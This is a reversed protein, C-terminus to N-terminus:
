HRPRLTDFTVFAGGLGLTSMKKDDGRVGKGRYKREIRRVARKAKELVIAM